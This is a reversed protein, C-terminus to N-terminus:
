ATVLQIGIMNAKDAKPLGYQDTTDGTRGHRPHGERSTPVLISEPTLKVTTVENCRKCGGEKSQSEDRGEGTKLRFGRGREQPKGSGQMSPVQPFQLNDQQFLQCLPLLTVWGKKRKGPTEDSTPSSKMQFLLLLKITSLWWM